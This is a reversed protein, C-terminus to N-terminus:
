TWNFEIAASYSERGGNVSERGVTVGLNAALKNEGFSVKLKYETRGKARVNGPSSDCDRYLEYVSTESALKAGTVDCWLRKGYWGVVVFLKVYDAEMTMLGQLEGLCLVVYQDDVNQRFRVTFSLGTARKISAGYHYNLLLKSRFTTPPKLFDNPSITFHIDLEPTTTPNMHLLSNPSSVYIDKVPIDSLRIPKTNDLNPAPIDVREYTDIAARPSGRLTISVPIDSNQTTCALYAKYIEGNDIQELPLQIRIGFNTSNYEPKPDKNGFQVAFENYDMLVVDASGAFENPSAALLGRPATGNMEWAFLSQDYTTRMIEEQLRIFAKSGEGYLTPMNVGFLGMLSYARDEDRTTVRGTAWSMMKAVSIPRDRQNKLAGIDINTIDHILDAMDSKEGILVWNDAYFIVSSPAILEQLTWGRRFWESMRFASKEKSHDELEKEGPVDSLYVYCTGSGSYWAYMSNIAESLEASSSKDICCTDIWVYEYGDRIAQECCGTIKEYGKGKTLTLGKQIDPFTLEEEPAGWRHSLIAYRPFDLLYEHLELHVLTEQSAISLTCHILRM